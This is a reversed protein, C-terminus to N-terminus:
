RECRVRVVGDAETEVTLRLSAEAGDSTASVDHGPPPIIVKAEVKGVRCRVKGGPRLLGPPFTFDGGSLVFARTDGEQNQVAARTFVHEVLNARDYLAERLRDMEAPRRCPGYWIRRGGALRVFLSAGTRCGGRPQELPAPLPRPIFRVLHRLDVEGPRESIGFRGTVGPGEPEPQAVIEVVKGEIPPPLEDEGACGVLVVALFALLSRKVDTGVHIADLFNPGRRRKVKPRRRGEALTGAGARSRGSTMLAPSTAGRCGGGYSM